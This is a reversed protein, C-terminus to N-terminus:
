RKLTTHKTGNALLKHKPKDLVSTPTMSSSGTFDSAFSSTSSEKSIATRSSLRQSAAETNSARLALELALRGKTPAPPPKEEMPVMYSIM